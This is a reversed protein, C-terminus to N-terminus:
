ASPNGSKGKRNCPPNVIGGHGRKGLGGIIGSPRIEWTRNSAKINRGHTKGKTGLDLAPVCVGRRRFTPECSLNREHTRSRDARRGVMASFM